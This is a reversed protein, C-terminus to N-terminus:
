VIVVLAGRPKRLLEARIQPLALFLRAAPGGRRALLRILGIIRAIRRLTLRVPM